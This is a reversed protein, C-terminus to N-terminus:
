KFIRILYRAAGRLETVLSTHTQSRQAWVAQL